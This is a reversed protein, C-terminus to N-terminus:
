GLAPDGALFSQPDRATWLSLALLGAKRAISEDVEQQDRDLKGVQSDNRPFVTIAPLQPAHKQRPAACRDAPACHAISILLLVRGPNVPSWPFPTSAPTRQRM